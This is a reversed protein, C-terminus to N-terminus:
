IWGRRKLVWLPLVASALMLGLAWPYGWLWSLEPMHHFNMGYIGAVLTPPLFVLAAWSFLKMAANQEVSILGLSADLLFTLNDALFNSHENLSTADTLLSEIHRVEGNASPQNMQESGRLFSLLRSTSVATYRIKTLLIQARGIRTLLATLRAAPIRREDTQKSFIHGSMREIESGLDELEDALRDIIADLLRALVTPADRALEPERRVHDIFALVPKPTAYRITVLRNRALVFGIPSSTPQGESLGHLVSMTMYLADGREYLRSSPEIEALEEHTPINLGICREVLKEEEKTPEELDIWTAGDPIVGAKAEVLSGDCDPGYTRLM